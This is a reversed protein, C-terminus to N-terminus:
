ANIWDKKRGDNYNQSSSAYPETLENLRRVKNSIDDMIKMIEKYRLDDSMHGCQLGHANYGNGYSICFDDERSDITVFGDHVDLRILLDKKKM